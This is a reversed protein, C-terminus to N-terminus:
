QSHEVAGNRHEIRHRADLRLGLRDPTLRVLVVDGTDAKHVLHIADPGIKGAADLHNALAEAGIRDRDLKGDTGLRLMDADDVQDRHLRDDPIRLGEARLELDAVHRVVHLGLGLRAPLREDLRHDLHVVGHQLAEELALLRVLCRDLTAQADTREGALHNGHQRAGGELVLAHLRQQVRHAVEHRRRGVHRRHM